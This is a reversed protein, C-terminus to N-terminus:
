DQNAPRLRAAGLFDRMRGLLQRALGDIEESGQSGEGQELAQRTLLQREALIRSLHEALEPREAMLHQLPRKRIEYVVSETLASVTASRRAGTLLSMEGFFEGPELHAV